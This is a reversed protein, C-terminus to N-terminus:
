VFNFYSLEFTATCTNYSVNTLNSALTIDGVSVPFLDVIRIHNNPNNNNDLISLTADSYNSSITTSPAMMRRYQEVFSDNNFLSIPNAMSELWKVLEKYNSMDEFVVFKAVMTGYNIKYGPIPYNLMPTAVTAVPSALNPLNVEVCSFMTNPIKDIELIFGTPSLFNLDYRDFVKDLKQQRQSGNYGYVQISDSEEQAGITGTVPASYGYIHISDKNIEPASIVGSIKVNGTAHAIDAGVEALQSYGSIKTNGYISIVDPLESAGLHGGFTSGGIISVVDSGIETGIMTGSIKVNGLVSIPDSNEQKNFTGSVKVRGNASVIDPGTEQGIFSGTTSSGANFSGTDGIPEQLGFSGNVLVKGNSTITDTVDTGSIQGSIKVKGNVSISDVNTEQLEFTGTVLTKGNFVITDSVPESIASSGRVLITGNSAFTDASETSTFTGSITGNSSSSFPIILNDPEFIQWPNVFLSKVEAATLGRNWVNAAIIPFRCPFRSDSSLGGGITLSANSGSIEQKITGSAVLVGNAYLYSTTGIRTAVYHRIGTGVADAAQVHESGGSYSEFGLQNYFYSYDAANVYIGTQSYPNNPIITQILAGLATDPYAIIHLAFDGTYSGNSTPIGTAFQLGTNGTVTSLGIGQSTGRKSSNIYTPKLGRVADCLNHVDLAFYLKKTIDSKSIQYKAPQRIHKEPLILLSM